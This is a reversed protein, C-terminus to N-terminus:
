DSNKRAILYVIDSPLLRLVPLSTAVALYVLLKSLFGSNGAYSIRTYLGALTLTPLTGTKITSFKYGGLLKTLNKSNFYHVHPSPLDKQWLREFFGIKGILGFLKSLRYFVGESSPLNLVLIGGENLRSHCAQLVEDISPIHEFVDNFVIVDFKEDDKLADPFYGNRIPLGKSQTENFVAKDPEIGIVDFQTTAAELFWGHACGVDLLCGGEPKLSSIVGLLKNFNRVRIDRLGSERAKEDVLEHSVSNNILPELAGKEYLCSSCQFHWNQIGTILPVNCLPCINNNM